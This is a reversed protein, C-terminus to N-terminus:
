CQNVKIGRLLARIVMWVAKVQEPTFDPYEALLYDPDLYNEALTTCRIREKRVADSNRDEEITM